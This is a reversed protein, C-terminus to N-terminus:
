ERSMFGELDFDEEDFFGAEIADEWNFANKDAQRFAEDDFDVKRTADLDQARDGESRSPKTVSKLRQLAELEDDLLLQAVREIIMQAGSDNLAEEFFPRPPIEWIGGTHMGSEYVFGGSVALGFAHRRENESVEWMFGNELKWAVEEWTITDWVFGDQWAIVAPRFESTFRGGVKVGRRVTGAPWRAQMGKPKKVVIHNALRELPARQGGIAISMTSLEPPVGGMLKARLKNAIIEAAALQAHLASLPLSSTARALANAFERVSVEDVVGIKSSNM